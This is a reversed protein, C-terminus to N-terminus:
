PLELDSAEALDQGAGRVAVVHITEGDFVFLSRYVNGKRTKFLVQRLDTGLKEAEPALGCGTTHIPLSKLSDLYALYWRVAGDKSRQALWDFIVDVDREARESM